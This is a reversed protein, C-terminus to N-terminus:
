SRAVARHALLEALGPGIRNDSPSGAILVFGVQNDQRWGVFYARAGKGSVNALRAENGIGVVSHGGIGNVATEFASHASSANDCSTDVNVIEPAIAKKLLSGPKLGIGPVSFDAVRAKQCHPTASEQSEQSASFSPNAQVGLYSPIDASTILGRPSSGCASLALATCLVALLKAVTKVGQSDLSRRSTSRVEAM